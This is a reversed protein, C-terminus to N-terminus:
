KKFTSDTDFETPTAVKICESLMDIVNDKRDLSFIRILDSGSGTNKKVASNPKKKFTSDTDSNVGGPDAVRDLGPGHNDFSM